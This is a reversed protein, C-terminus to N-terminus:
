GSYLSFSCLERGYFVSLLLQTYHYSLFNMKKYKDTRKNANREEQHSKEQVKSESDTESQSENRGIYFSIWTSKRENDKQDKITNERKYAKEKFLINKNMQMASCKRNGSLQLRKELSKM